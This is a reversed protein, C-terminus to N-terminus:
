LVLGGTKTKTKKVLTVTNWFGIWIGVKYKATM